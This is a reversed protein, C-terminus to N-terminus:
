QVSKNRDPSDSGFKRAIISAIQEETAGSNSQKSGNLLRKNIENFKTVITSLSMNNQIWTDNISMVRKLYDRLGLLAEETTSEPYKKKYLAALKGAFEREKGPTTIVYDINYNLKYEEVFVDVLRDLYEKKENGIGKSIGNGIGTPSQDGKSAGEFGRQDGKSAGKIFENIDQIDFKEIYINFRKIIGVHSKNHENLPLNKQHKLFNRIYYCDGTHSMLLGRQLGKLAGKIEKPTVSLDSSWRKINIEIFGAIDCNDCLYMFLLKDLAKLSSFWCDNWKDTNTFRYAM